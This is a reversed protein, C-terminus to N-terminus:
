EEVCDDQCELCVIGGLGDVRGTTLLQELQADDLDMQRKMQQRQEPTFAEPTVECRGKWEEGEEPEHEVSFGVETCARADAPFEKGCWDCTMTEM